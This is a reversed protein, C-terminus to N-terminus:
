SQAALVVMGGMAAAWVLWFLLMLGNFRNQQRELRERDRRDLREELADVRRGLGDVEWGQAHETTRV